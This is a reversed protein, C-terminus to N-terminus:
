VFYASPSDEFGRAGGEVKRRYRCPAFIGIGKEGKRVHRGLEHWKHFGAVQTSNERQALILLLNGFSYRHFRSMVSLYRVLTESHGKSLAEKLEAVGDHVLQKADERKM